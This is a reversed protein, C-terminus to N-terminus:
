RAELLSIKKKSLGFSLFRQQRSNPDSFKYLAKLGCAIRLEGDLEFCQQLEQTLAPLQHPMFLDCASVIGRRTLEGLMAAAREELLIKKIEGLIRYGEITQLARGQVAQKFALETETEFTANIRIAYRLGRFLRTPDDVFSKDHLIRLLKAQLDAQGSYPDVVAATLGPLDVQRQKSLRNLEAVPVAIANITFDRRKLDAKISEAATVSPLAGPQLYVESRPVAIDIEGIEPALMRPSLVKATLFEPFVKVQGDLERAVAEAFAPGDAIGRDLNEVVCDIDRDHVALGQLLDRVVGGVIYAACNQQAAVREFTLLLKQQAASLM